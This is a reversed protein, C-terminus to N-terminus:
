ISILSLRARIAAPTAYTELFYNVASPWKTVGGTHSGLKAARFSDAAPGSLYHPLAHFAQPETMGITDAEETLRTLFDFVMVPDSGDFKYDKMTIDLSKIHKRVAITSEASRGSRRLALKYYRYNMLREFNPESTKLTRVNAQRPGKERFAFPISIGGDDSSSDSRCHSCDSSDCSSSSCSSNSYEARRRSKRDKRSHKSRSARKAPKGRSSRKTGTSPKPDNDFSSERFAKRQAEEHERMQEQAAYLEDALAKNGTFPQPEPKPATNRSDRMLAPAPQAPTNSQQTVPKVPRKGFSRIQDELQHLRNEMAPDARQALQAREQKYRRDVEDDIDVQVDNIQKRLASLTEKVPRDKVKCINAIFDIMDQEDGM